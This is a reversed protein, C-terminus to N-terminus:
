LASLTHLPVHEAATPLQPLAWPTAACHARRCIEAPVGFRRNRIKQEDFAEGNQLTVDAETRELEVDDCAFPGKQRDDLHPSPAGSREDSREGTHRRRLASAQSTGHTAEPSFAKGRHGADLTHPDVHGGYRKRHAL